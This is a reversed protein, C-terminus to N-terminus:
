YVLIGMATEEVRAVTIQFARLSDTPAADIMIVLTVFASVFWFYQHRNGAMKYVCLGVYLSVCIIRDWREQPFLAIFILAAAGAALTGLIRMAAKNLSAGATDLSVMAVAFGAWYPKEWGLYFAIAYAITMALATKISEKTRTSLPIM